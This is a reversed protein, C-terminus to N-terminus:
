EACAYMSAPIDYESGSRVEGSPLRLSLVMTSSMLVDQGSISREVQLQRELDCERPSTPIGLSQFPLWMSVEGLDGMLLPVAYPSSPEEFGLRIGAFPRVTSEVIISSWYGSGSTSSRTVELLLGPQCAEGPGCRQGFALKASGSAWEVVSYGVQPRFVTFEMGNPQPAPMRFVEQGGTRSKPCAACVLVLLAAFSQGSAFRM